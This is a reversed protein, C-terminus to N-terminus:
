KLKRKWLYITKLITVTFCVFIMQYIIIPSTIMAINSNLFFMPTAANYVVAFLIISSVTILFYSALTTGISVVWLFKLSKDILKKFIFCAIIFLIVSLVPIAFLILIFMFGLIVIVNISLVIYLAFKIFRQIKKM